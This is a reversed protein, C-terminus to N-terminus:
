AAGIEGVADWRWVDHLAGLARDVTVCARGIEDAEVPPRGDAIEERIADLVKVATWLAGERTDRLNGIIATADIAVEPICWARGIMRAGHIRGERCRKRVAQPSIGWLAAAAETTLYGAPPAM